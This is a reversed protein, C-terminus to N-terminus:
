SEVLFIHAPMTWPDLKIYNTSGQWSYQQGDLLDIVKFTQWHELGLAGLNLTVWGSQIHFPDLNVAVLIRNSGDFTRKSYCILAENDTPHFVLSWDSQLAPNQRRIRNVQAILPRLNDPADLDWHRIQYKESDLYEESGPRLPRNECLEFAPGYIGYSAGLTAALILRLMFAPRGGKQLFENLIDPTNPWLNPRYYERMPTQTLETFYETLGWKDNRWTFYTYSQTFGLKALSKMLKPRTFAESLFITQPHKAKIQGICWEWFGFAKTHPNDVRFITVGQDIWYEIVSKLEEWLAQWNETEFDLPYIDQYKKPPNEAYQITGDPRKKFWEPHEKVYPHDPSCQFAIDLAIDINLKKAEAVLRHFDELSGLQPHIAKHGGEPGGIAWPSGVDEPEATMSNNKGKRFTRGIPHIPPLYLVDFGMEALLPLRAIVDQFTGHTHEDPGCSRPFLEYWTSFRAKEPDVWVRREPYATVFRREGYLQMLSGLTPSLAIEIAPDGGQRLMQAYNRLKAALDGSQAQAAREVLEAGILLEVAVDQEAAVRKHLDQQWTQFPDVWALIRYFAQGIQTVQFQARWRDNGIPEMFLEEWDTAGAQRFSLVASLQDHGDAFIDAEVVVYEGVTRKIAYRGGDIEPTVAEIIARQRGEAPWMPNVEGRKL